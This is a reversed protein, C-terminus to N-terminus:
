WQHRVEKQHALLGPAATSAPLINESVYFTYSNTFTHRMPQNFFRRLILLM